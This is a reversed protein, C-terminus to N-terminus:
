SDSLLAAACHQHGVGGMPTKTHGVPAKGILLPGAMDLPYPPNVPYTAIRAPTVCSFLDPTESTIELLIKFPLFFFCDSLLLWNLSLWKFRKKSTKQLSMSDIVSRFKRLRLTFSLLNLRNDPSSVIVCLFGRLVLTTRQASIQCFKPWEPDWSFSSYTWFTFM